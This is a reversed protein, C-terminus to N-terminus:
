IEEKYDRALPNHSLIIGSISKDFFIDYNLFNPGFHYM